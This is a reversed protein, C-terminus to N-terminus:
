ILQQVVSILTGQDFEQKTVYANAGLALGREIDDPSNRSTMMVIPLSKLAPDNRVAALLAFGDMRPMEVDAVMLDIRASGSRLLELAALGDISVLVRYGQAELISKELTRTTISDDVVLVTRRAAREVGPTRSLATGGSHNRARIMLAEPSLVLTIGDGIMATGYVLPVDAAIATPDGVVVSRVESLRDVVLVARETGCRLVLAPHRDDGSGPAVGLLDALALLPVANGDLWLLEGGRSRDVDGPAIRMLQAVASAPIAYSGGGAEVLLLTQRTLVSPVALTIQAGGSPGVGIAVSGHLRRMAEAVASLGIGRGSVENVEDATSFGQEFLLAELAEPGPTPAGRPILGAARARAKIRRYDIGAGDDSITLLLQGRETRPLITVVGQEPKGARRREAPGEIGHSVANRLLHLVPERLAQLVRRDAEGEFPEARLIASKGQSAAIERVMREYGEFLTNIPLLLIREADQELEIVARDLRWHLSAQERRIREAEALARALRRALEPSGEREASGAIASLDAQLADLGHAIGGGEQILGCLDHLSRALREVHPGGARGRGDAASAAPEDTTATGAASDEIADVLARLEAIAAADLSREGSEMALVLTEADHALAETAPQEVARAAGKLSHARRSVDRWDVAGGADGDVLAARIAALHDALETEFAAFLEARLDDM